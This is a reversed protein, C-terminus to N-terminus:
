PKTISVTMTLTLTLTLRTIAKTKDHHQTTEKLKHSQKINTKTKKIDQSGGGGGGRLV